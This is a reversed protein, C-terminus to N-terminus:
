DEHRRGESRTMAAATANLSENRTMTAVVAKLSRIELLAKDLRDNTNVTIHDLKRNVRRDALKGLLAVAGGIIALIVPDTM